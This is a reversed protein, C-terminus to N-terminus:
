CRGHGKKRAREEEMTPIKPIRRVVRVISEVSASQLDFTERASTNSNLYNRVCLLMQAEFRQTSCSENIANEIYQLDSIFTEDNASM